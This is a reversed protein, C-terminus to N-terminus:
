RAGRDLKDHFKAHCNGCLVILDGPDEFGRRDYTRHHTQLRKDANCLQCRGGAMELAVARMAQWHETKLYERYPMTHLQDGAFLALADNPTAIGGICTYPMLSERIGDIGEFRKWLVEVDNTTVVYPTESAQRHGDAEWYGFWYAESPTSLGREADVWVVTAEADETAWDDLGVVGPPYPTEDVVADPYVWLSVCVRSRGHRARHWLKGIHLKAYYLAEENALAFDTDSM